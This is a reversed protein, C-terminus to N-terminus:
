LLEGMGGLLGAPLPWLKGTCHAAQLESINKGVAARQGTLMEYLICGLAYVDTYVGVPEGKWQEPAMYLPTGVVGHTLQTRSVALLASAHGSNMSVPDSDLQLQDSGKQLVAALGFDTVRLRNVETGALKDVGVLVNEPKLDRHVFGPIKEAAYQLGRAIQLAFLLAQGVPMPAGLWSRLSADKM